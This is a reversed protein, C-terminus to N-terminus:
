LPSVQHKFKKLDFKSYSIKEICNCSQTLVAQVSSPMHLVSLVSLVDGDADVYHLM